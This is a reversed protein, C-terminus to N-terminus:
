YFHPKIKLTLDGKKAPQGDKAPLYIIDGSVEPSIKVQLVPQIKGNAVVIETLNRRSVQETQITIVVERKKLIAWVTLGAVGAGILGFILLKRRKNSKAM